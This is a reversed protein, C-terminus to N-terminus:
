INIKILLTYEISLMTSINLNRAAFIGNTYCHFFSASLFTNKFDTEVSAIEVNIIFLSYLFNFDEAVISCFGFLFM